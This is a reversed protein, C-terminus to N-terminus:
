SMPLPISDYSLIDFTVMFIKVCERERIEHKETEKLDIM